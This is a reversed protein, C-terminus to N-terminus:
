YRRSRMSMSKVKRHFVIRYLRCGQEATIVTDVVNRAAVDWSEVRYLLRGELSAGDSILLNSPTAVAGGGDGVDAKSASVAAGGQAEEDRRRGDSRECSVPGARRVGREDNEGDGSEGGVRGGADLGLGSHQSVEAVQPQDYASDRHIHPLSHEAILQDRGHATPM